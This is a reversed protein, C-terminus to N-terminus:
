GGHLRWCRYESIQYIFFDGGVQLAAERFTHPLDMRETRQKFLEPTLPM